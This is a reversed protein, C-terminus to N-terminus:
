QIQCVVHKEFGFPHSTLLFTAPFKNEVDSGVFRREFDLYRAGGLGVEYTIIGRSSFPLRIRQSNVEAEEYKKYLEGDKLFQINQAKEGNLEFSVEWRGKDDACNILEAYASNFLLFGFFLIAKM